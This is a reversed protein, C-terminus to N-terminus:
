VNKCIINYAHEPLLNNVMHNYGNEGLEQRLAKDNYLKYLKNTLDETNGAEAWYGCNIEMM